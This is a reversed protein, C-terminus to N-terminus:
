EGRRRYYVLRTEGYASDKLVDWAPNDIVPQDSRQEMVFLGGPKLKVGPGLWELLAAAWPQGDPAEYPPDAVVLDFDRPPLSGALWVRVDARQCGRAAEAGLIETVNRQLLSFTRPDSEVWIAEAAGRSVAEVGIAGSGAYLDLVRKGVLSEGLVSFLAQRVMDKTPRVGARPVALRRGRYIGGSIRIM